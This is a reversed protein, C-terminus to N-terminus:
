SAAAGAESEVYRPFVPAPPPLPTGAELRGAAGLAKFDRAAAPVALLDLLKEAGAPVFPQALIAVQRVVEATVWLVTAMRAPDTKRLEWPAAAAFYRNADAVVQWVANLVLHLQQTRMAERALGIMTDAAALIAEDAESLKGPPPV